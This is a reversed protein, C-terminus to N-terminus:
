AMKLAAITVSTVADYTIAVQGSANNFTKQPFPGIFREAGAPIAVAVNTFTAEGYGTVDLTTVQATVTVTHSVADGNKVHLVTQGKNLATDGGASAAAYTANLGDVDFSQITLDAM